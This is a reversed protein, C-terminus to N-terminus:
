LEDIKYDLQITKHVYNYRVSFSVNNTELDIRIYMYPNIILKILNINIIFGWFM